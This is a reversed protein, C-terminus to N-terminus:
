EHTRRGDGFRSEFRGNEVLRMENERANGIALASVAENM